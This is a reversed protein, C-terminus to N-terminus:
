AATGEEVRKRRTLRAKAITAVIPAIWPIVTLPFIWTFGITLSTFLAGAWLFFVIGSAWGASRRLYEMGVWVMLQGLAAFGLIIAKAVGWDFHHNTATHYTAAIINLVGLAVLPICSGYRSLVEGRRLVPDNDPNSIWIAM